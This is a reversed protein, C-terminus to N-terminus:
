SRGRKEQVLRDIRQSAEAMSEPAGLRDGLSRLYDLQAQSPPRQQMAKLRRQMKRAMREAPAIMSLWKLFGGCSSCSARVTHPGTGPSLTPTEIVGCHPCPQVPNQSEPPLHSM